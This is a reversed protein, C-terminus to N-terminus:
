RRRARRMALGVAVAYSPGDTVAAAARRPISVRRFPDLVEVPVEFEAALLDMLGESRWGGGSLVMRSLRTGAGGAEHFNLTNRVDAALRRNSDHAMGAGVAPEERMSVVRAFVPQGEELVCIVIARHGVHVLVSRPDRHEPYSMRYVNVVALAELDVVVPGFGGAPIMAMRHAVQDRRAAVLCVPVGGGPLAPGLVEYALQVEGLDFPVHQRAEWRMTEALEARSMAPLTIRKLIAAHGSLAITVRAKAVGLSRFLRSVVEKVEGGDHEDLQHTPTTTRRAEGAAVLTWRRLRRSLVVARVRSSGIDLGVVPLRFRPIPLM